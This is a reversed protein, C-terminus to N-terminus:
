VRHGEYTRQYEVVDEFSVGLEVIMLTFEKEHISERMTM